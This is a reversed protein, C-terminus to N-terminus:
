FRLRCHVLRLCVRPFHMCDDFGNVAVATGLKTAGSIEARESARLQDDYRSSTAEELSYAAVTRMAALAETSTGAASAYTDLKHKTTQSQVRSYWSGAAALQTLAMLRHEHLSNQFFGIWRVIPSIALCVLAVDWKYVFAMIFASVSSGLNEFLFLSQYSIGGEIENISEGILSALEEPHNIDFWGLDQRLIAKVYEKKYKSIQKVKTIDAVAMFIFSGLGQACGIGAVTFAIDRVDNLEFAGTSASGVSQITESLSLLLMPQCLGVGLAALVGVGLLAFDVPTAFMYLQSISIRPKLADPIENRPSAPGMM